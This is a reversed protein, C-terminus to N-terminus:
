DDEINQNRRAVVSRYVKARLKTPVLRYVSRMTVNRFYQMPTIFGDKRFQRQLQVEDRSMQSGGRREYAQEDARYLVLPQPLNMFRANHMMLREWLLYDEFRGADEPYGGVELVASKRYIVAPHHVPSQLRAYTDLEEGGAPLLRIQGPEEEEDAFEQIACGLVTVPRPDGEPVGVFYPMMTAFREPLSIDDADARAVIDYNCYGLGKNLAHALGANEELPVITVEPVPTDPEAISFWVDITSALTDLFEQIKPGVPGDRVIVIQSPPLTQEITGSQVAREFEHFTNGEYVSMLLSFPPM